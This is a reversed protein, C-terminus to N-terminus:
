MNRSHSHTQGEEYETDVYIFYKSPYVRKTYRSCDLIKNKMQSNRSCAASNQKFKLLKPCLTLAVPSDLGSSVFMSLLFQIRSLMDKM